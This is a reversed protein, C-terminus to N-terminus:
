DVTKLNVVTAIVIVVIFENAVITIVPAFMSGLLKTSYRMPTFTWSNVIGEIAKDMSAPVKITELVFSAIDLNEEVM